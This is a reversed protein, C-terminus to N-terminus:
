RLPSIPRAKELVEPHFDATGTGSFFLEVGASYVDDDDSDIMPNTHSSREGDIVQNEGVQFGMRNRLNQVPKTGKTRGRVARHELSLLM